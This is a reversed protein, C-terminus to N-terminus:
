KNKFQNYLEEATIKNFTIPDIWENTDEDVFYDNQPIWELFAIAEQKAYAKKIKKEYDYQESVLLEVKQRLKTKM